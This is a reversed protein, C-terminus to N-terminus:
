GEAPPPMFAPLIAALIPALLRDESPRGGSMIARVAEETAPSELIGV